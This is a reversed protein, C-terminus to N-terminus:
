GSTFSLGQPAGLLDLSFAYPAIIRGPHLLIATNDYNRAIVTTAILLGGIVLSWASECVHQIARRQGILFLPLDAFRLV